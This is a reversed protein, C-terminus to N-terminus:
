WRITKENAAGHPSLMSICICAIAANPVILVIGGQRAPKFGLSVANDKTGRTRTQREEQQQKM